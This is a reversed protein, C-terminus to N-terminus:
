SNHWFIKYEDYKLLVCLDDLSTVIDEQHLSPINQLNITDSIEPVVISYTNTIM